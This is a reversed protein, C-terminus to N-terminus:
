CSYILSFVLSLSVINYINESIDLTVEVLEAVFCGYLCYRSWTPASRRSDTPHMFHM